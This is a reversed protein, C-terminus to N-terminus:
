EAPQPDEFGQVQWEGGPLRECSPLWQVSPSVQESLFVKMEMIGPIPWGPDDTVCLMQRMCYAHYMVVDYRFMAVTYLLSADTCHTAREAAREPHELIADLAPRGDTVLEHLFMSFRFNSTLEIKPKADRYYYPELRTRLLICYRELLREFRIRQAQPYQARFADVRESLAKWMPREGAIFPVVESWFREREDVTLDSAVLVAEHVDGSKRYAETMAKLAPARRKRDVDDPHFLEPPPLNDIFARPDLVTAPFLPGVYRRSWWKGTAAREKPTRPTFAYTSLRMYKPPAGEFPNAGFRALVQPEGQLLRQMLKHPWSYPSYSSLGYPRGTGMISSLLDADTMGASIYIVAQDVRPHFPSVMPPASDEHTPMFKYTYAQWNEGDRSGEFIPVMKVPPSSHPPFVGYANLVRLPSIFRYFGILGALWRRNWTVDDFPWNIWTQSCWSNFPFYLLSGVFLIVMVVNSFLHNLPFVIATWPQAFIDFFSSQTDFLGVCALIYGVNFYGWNGTVQIGVMLGILGLAGVIRLDGQVLALGPCIVESFFMFVLAGRLAWGPLNQMWWGLPSPMPMWTMFGKLYLSDGPKTGVFKLKAFGWMLRAVLWRWTFAVLPLPLEAAHLSPLAETSPLFLALFGAELLMCDWPFMMACVDLSLACLWAIFLGVWGLPGGYIALAAGVCGLIPIAQVMTESSSLWLLTPMELFRRPGPFDEAMRRLRPGIPAVGREGVMARVQPIMAGLAILYLLGLCRPVLGWVLRPDPGQLYPIDM